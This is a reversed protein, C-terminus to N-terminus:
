RVEDPQPAPPKDTKPGWEEGDKLKEKPEKKLEDRDTKSEPEASKAEEKKEGNEKAWWAQWEKPDNGLKQKTIDRLADMAAGRIKYDEDKVAEMLAGYIEKGGILRLAEVVDMRVGKDKDKLAEAIAEVHQKGAYKGLAYVARTRMEPDQSKLLTKLSEAGAASGLKATSSGAYLIVDETEKPDFLREKLASVGDKYNADGIARAAMARTAADKNHLIEVLVPGARPDKADGLAILISKVMETTTSEQRYVAALGPVALNGMDRLEKWAKDREAEETKLTGRILKRVKNIVDPDVEPEKPPEKPTEAQATTKGPTEKAGQQEFAKAADGRAYQKLDLVSLDEPVHMVFYDEAGLVKLKGTKFVRLAGEPRKVTWATALREGGCWLRFAERVKEPVRDEALKHEEEELVAGKESIVAKYEKEGNVEDALRFEYLEDFDKTKRRVRKITVGNFHQALTKTVAEPVKESPEEAFAFAAALLLLGAGLHVPNRYGRM